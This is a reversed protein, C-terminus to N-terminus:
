SAGGPARLTPGPRPVPRRRGDVLWVALAVLYEVATSLAAAVVLPLYLAGLYAACLALGADRWWPIALVAPAPLLLLWWPHGLAALVVAGVIAVISVIAQVFLLIAIPMRFEAYRNLAVATWMTRARLVTVGSEVLARRFRLDADRRVADRTAAPADDARDSLTDHLIAPLAQRGYSAVLGWLFSPVSALDTLQGAPVEFSAGDRPDVWRFPQEVRFARDGLYSLALPPLPAGDPDLFPM